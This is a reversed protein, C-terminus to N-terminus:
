DEEREELPCDEPIEGYPDDITRGLEDCANVTNLNPCEECCYIRIIRVRYKLRPMPEGKLISRLEASQKMKAAFEKSMCVLHGAWFYRRKDAPDYKETM